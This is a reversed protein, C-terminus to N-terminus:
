TKTAAHRAVNRDFACGVYILGGEQVKALVWVNRLM